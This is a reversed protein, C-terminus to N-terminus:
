NKKEFSSMNKCSSYFYNLIKHKMNLDKKKELSHCENVQFPFIM